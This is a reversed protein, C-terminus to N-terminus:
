DNNFTIGIVLQSKHKLYACAKIIEIFDCGNFVICVLKVEAASILSLMIDPNKEEFLIIKDEHIIIDIPRYIM